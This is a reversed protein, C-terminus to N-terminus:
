RKASGANVDTMRLTTIITNAAHTDGCKSRGATASAIPTNTPPTSCTITCIGGSRRSRTSRSGRQFRCCSATRRMALSIPGAIM